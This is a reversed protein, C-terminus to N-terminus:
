YNTLIEGFTAGVSSLQLVDVVRMPTGHVCPRGGCKDPEITIRQLLDAKTM